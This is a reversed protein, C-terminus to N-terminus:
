GFFHKYAEDLDESDLNNLQFFPETRKVWAKQSAIVKAFFSDKSHEAIVQDWIKLQEQIIEPSTKVVNVGRKRIEDFDKPYRSHAHWSQDSSASFAAHRMIAKLEASLADYKPKNFVIEFAEAQRHHSGMVYFKAVSPLGLQLDTPPNSSDTADILDREM